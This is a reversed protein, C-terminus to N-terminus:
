TTKPNWTENKKLRTVRIKRTQGNKCKVIKGDLLRGASEYAETGFVGVTLTDEAESTHLWHVFPLIKYIYVAKLEYEPIATQKSVPKTAHHGRM